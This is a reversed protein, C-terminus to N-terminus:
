EDEEDDPEAVADDVLEKTQRICRLLLGIIWFLIVSGIVVYIVIGVVPETFFSLALALLPLPFMIVVIAGLWIFLFRLVKRPMEEDKLFIAVRHLFLIFFINSVFVALVMASTAAQGANRESIFVMPPVTLVGCVPMATLSLLAGLGMGWAGSEKPVFVCLLRGLWILILAPVITIMSFLVKIGETGPDTIVSILLLFPLWIIALIWHGILTLLLGRQVPKWAQRSPGPMSDSGAADDFTFPAAAAESVVIASGCKPCKIKKGAHEDRVRLKSQCSSCTVSIPM